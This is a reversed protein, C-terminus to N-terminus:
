ERASSAIRFSGRLDAPRAGAGLGEVTIRRQDRRGVSFVRSALEREGSIQFLDQRKLVGVDDDPEGAALLAHGLAGDRNEDLTTSEVPVFLIRVFAQALLDFVERAGDNM